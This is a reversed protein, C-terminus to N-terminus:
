PRADPESPTPEADPSPAAFRRAVAVELGRPGLWGIAGALGHTALPPLNLWEGAGGALVACAIATPLEWLLEASWFRRRGLRVLRRHWLLRMLLAMPLLAVISALVAPLDTLLPKEPM